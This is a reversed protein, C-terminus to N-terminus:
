RSSKRAGATAKPSSPAAAAFTSHRLSNRETRQNDKAVLAENALRAACSAPRITVPRSAFITVYMAM